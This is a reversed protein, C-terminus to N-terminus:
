SCKGHKLMPEDVEPPRILMAATHLRPYMNRHLKGLIAPLGRTGALVCRELASADKLVSQSVPDSEYFGVTANYVHLLRHKAKRLSM